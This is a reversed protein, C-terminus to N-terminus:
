SQGRAKPFGVLSIFVRLVRQLDYGPEGEWGLSQHKEQKRKKRGGGGGPPGKLGVADGAEEASMAGMLEPEEVQVDEPM